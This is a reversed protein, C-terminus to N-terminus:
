TSFPSVKFGEDRFKLSPLIMGFIRRTIPFEAMDEGTLEVM